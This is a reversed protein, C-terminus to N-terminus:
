LGNLYKLQIIINNFDRLAELKKSKIGYAENLTRLLNIYDTQGSQFFRSAASIIEDSQKLGTKQFYRLQQEASQWNSIAEQRNSQIEIQKAETQQQSILWGTKAGQIRGAYQWFWLPVTIGGRLRNITPTTKLGQNLYGFSFGPLAKNREVQLNRREVNQLQQYYGLLPHNSISDQLQLWSDDAKQKEIPAAQISDSLGTLLKLKKQSAILQNQAAIFQNHVAAYQAESFLQQLKDIQGAELQRAASKQFENYLSDQIQLLSIAASEFQWQLFIERVLKRLDNETVTKGKEALLTQEKLLQTQRAYVSPFEFSQSAGITYFEGTPSETIVDPNPLNVGTKQLQKRQKVQLEAAKLAPHYQLASQLADTESIVKQAILPAAFIILAILIKFKVM